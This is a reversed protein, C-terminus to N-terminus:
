AAVREPWQRVCLHKLNEPWEAMDGGKRDRLHIRTDPEPDGPMWGGVLSRRSDHPQAGFQKFFCKINATKCEEVVSEGWRVDFPRAGPGSEGGVIIWDLGVVPVYEIPNSYPKVVKEPMGPTRLWDRFRVLALAPEYSVFRIAAPVLLLKPVREDAYEQTEASIGLWVNPLPWHDGTLQPVLGRPLPKKLGQLHGLDIACARLANVIAAPTGGLTAVWEFWEHMRKARKTLIQFTHQPCAAMVGFVAAIQENTLSEHFLDSMSNVFIRRAKKWGIPELLREADFVVKGTWRPGQKGFRVLGHYAGGPQASRLAIREAYCGGEGRAGGCGPSVRSCGRVCNWTEGATGDDSQTWEISTPVDRTIRCGARRTCSSAVDCVCDV